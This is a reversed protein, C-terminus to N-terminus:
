SYQEDKNNSAFKIDVKNNKGNKTITYYEVEKNEYNANNKLSYYKETEDLYKVKLFLYYTNESLSELDIGENILESISFEIGSGKTKHKVNIERTSEEDATKLVLKVTKVNSSEIDLSGKINLHPGYVIYESVKVQKSVEVGEFIDKVEEKNNVKNMEEYVAYAILVIILVLVMRLIIKGVVSKKKKGSM